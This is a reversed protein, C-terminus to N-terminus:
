QRPTGSKVGFGCGSDSLRKAEARLIREARERQLQQMDLDEGAIDLEAALERTLRDLAQNVIGRADRIQFAVNAAHHAPHYPALEGANDLAAKAAVLYGITLVVPDTSGEDNTAM